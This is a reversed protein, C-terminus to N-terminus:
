QTTATGAKKRMVEWIPLEWAALLEEQSDNVHLSIPNEM